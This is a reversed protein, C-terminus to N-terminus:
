PLLLLVLNFIYILSVAILGLIVGKLDDFGAFRETCWGFVVFLYYSIFSGQVLRFAVEPYGILTGLQLLTAAIVISLFSIIFSVVSLWSFFKLLEIKSGLLKAIGFLISFFIILLIIVAVFNFAFNSIFEVADSPKSPISQILIALALILMVNLKAKKIEAIGDESFIVIKLMKLLNGILSM